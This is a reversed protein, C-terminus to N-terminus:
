PRTGSVWRSACRLAVRRRSPLSLPPVAATAPAPRRRLCSWPAPPRSSGPHHLHPRRGGHPLAGDRQGRRDADGTERGPEPHHRRHDCLRGVGGQALMGTELIERVTLEKEGHEVLRGMTYTRSEATLQFATSYVDTLMQLTREERVVAQALLGMSVSITRGDGSDLACDLGTLVVYVDCTSEEGAGTIEMIQSFPLEYEATCLGGASSRYLMQLQSEGKFILKNGIVKSESCRLAARCKLLEEAEPKSGSLSIEDSFTFPKEQVCVTTCADCQESMQQVGAEEPALVGSCIDDEVPAYVQVCFALDVRVLVKRPNILRADAGQVRPLAVVRCLPTLAPHELTCSFPLEVEMRRIGEEGDPLYLLAARVSGSLEVRGDQLVKDRLCVVGETDCIRLIDPCADPVISELTEERCVTTDLVAEYGSRQTRDLELEM